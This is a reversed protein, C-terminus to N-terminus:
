CIVEKAKTANFYFLKDLLINGINYVEKINYLLNNFIALYTLLYLNEEVSVKWYLSSLFFLGLVVHM